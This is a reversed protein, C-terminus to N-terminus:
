ATVVQKAYQKRLYDALMYADCSVRGDDQMGQESYDIDAVLENAKKYSVGMQELVDRVKDRVNAIFASDTYILGDVSIDWNATDHAIYFDSDSFFDYENKDTSIHIGMEFVRVDKKVNSWLGDGATRYVENCSIVFDFGEADANTIVNQLM